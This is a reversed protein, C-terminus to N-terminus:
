LNVCLGAVPIIMLSNMRSPLGVGNIHNIQPELAERRSSEIWFLMDNSSRNSFDVINRLSMLGKAIIWRIGPMQECALVLSLLLLLLM